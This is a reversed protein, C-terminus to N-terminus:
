TYFFMIDAYPKIQRYLFVNAATKNLKTKVLSTYSTKVVARGLSNLTNASNSSLLFRDFVYLPEIKIQNRHNTQTHHVLANDDQRFVQIKLSKRM